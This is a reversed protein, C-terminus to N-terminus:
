SSCKIESSYSVITKSKNRINKKRWLKEEDDCYQLIMFIYSYIYTDRVDIRISVSDIM